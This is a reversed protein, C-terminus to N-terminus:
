PVTYWTPSNGGSSWTPVAKVSTMMGAELSEDRSFSVIHAELRLGQQGTTTIDGDMVALEKQTNNMFATQLSTFDSDGVDYVMMWEVSAEKLTGVQARWGGNARSTVDALGKEMSLSLDKVNEIESWTPTGWSGTNEYLKGDLGLTAM